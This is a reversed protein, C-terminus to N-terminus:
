SASAAPEDKWQVLVQRVRRAMRAATIKGPASVVASSHTPPLAPPTAPPTGVFKKLVGVHFVDHLCAAPPLQLRVAVVNIVEVVHYPGVFRPKLKDATTRPLSM